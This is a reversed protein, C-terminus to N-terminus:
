PGGRGTSGARPTDPGFGFTVRATPALVVAALAWWVGTPQISRSLPPAQGTPRRRRGSRRVGAAGPQAAGVGGPIASPPTSEMWGEQVGRAGPPGGGGGGPLGSPPTSEMGEDQLWGGLWDVDSRNGLPRKHSLGSP